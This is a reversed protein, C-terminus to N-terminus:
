SPLIYKINSKPNVDEFLSIINKLSNLIEIEPVNSNEIFYKGTEIILDYNGNARLKYLLNVDM